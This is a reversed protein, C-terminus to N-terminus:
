RSATAEQAAAEQEAARATVWASASAIGAGVAATITTQVM